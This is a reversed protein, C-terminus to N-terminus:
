RWGTTRGQRTATSGGPLLAGGASRAGEVAGDIGSSGGAPDREGQRPGAAAEAEGPGGGPAERSKGSDGPRQGQTRQERVVWVDNVTQRNGAPRNGGRNGTGSQDVIAAPPEEPRHSFEGEAPALAGQPPSSPGTKLATLPIGGTVAPDGALAAPEAAPEGRERHAKAALNATLQTIRSGVAAQFLIESVLSKSPQQRPLVSPGGLETILGRATERCEPGRGGRGGRGGRSGM